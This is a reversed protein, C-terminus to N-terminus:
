FGDALRTDFSRRLGNWGRRWIDDVLRGVRGAFVVSPREILAYYPVSLGITVPTVLLILLLTTLGANAGAAVFHIYIPFAIMMLAATHVLYLSFSIRGFFRSVAGSLMRQLTPSLSCGTVVLAARLFAPTGSWAIGAASQEMFAHFPGAIEPLAQSLASGALGLGAIGLGLANLARLSLGDPDAKQHAWPTLECLLAGFFFDGFYSGRSSLLAAVATAVRLFRWRGALALIFVLISGIFELPMTWLVHNYSPKYGLFTAWLGERIAGALSPAWCPGCHAMQATWSKDTLNALSGLRQFDAESFWHLAVLGLLTSATMPLSLRLYRKLILGPLTPRPRADDGAGRATSVEVARTVATSLVVGSLIFFISVALPGDFALRLIAAGLAWVSFGQAGLALSGGPHLFAPRLGYDFHYLVVSLSAWGRLGDLYAIRSSM